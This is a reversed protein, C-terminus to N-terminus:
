INKNYTRYTGVLRDSGLNILDKQALEHAGGIFFQKLRETVTTAAPVWCPVKITHYGPTSPITCCGYGVIWSRGVADLCSVQLIIKPWGIFLCYRCYIPIINM